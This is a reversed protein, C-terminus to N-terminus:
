KKGVLLTMIDEFSDTTVDDSKIEPNHINLIKLMNLYRDYYTSALKEIKEISEITIKYEKTGKEFDYLKDILKNKESNYYRLTNKIEIIQENLGSSIEEKAASIAISQKEESAEKYEKWKRINSENVTLNFKEKLIKKLDISTKAEGSIYYEVLKERIDQPIAIVM